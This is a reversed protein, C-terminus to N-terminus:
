NKLNRFIWFASTVNKANKKKKEIKKKFKLCLNRRISVDCRFVTEVIM